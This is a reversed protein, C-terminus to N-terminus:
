FREAHMSGLPPSSEQIVHCCAAMQHAEQRASAASASACCNDASAVKGALLIVQLAHLYSPIPLHINCHPTCEIYKTALQWKGLHEGPVPMLLLRVYKSMLILVQQLPICHM